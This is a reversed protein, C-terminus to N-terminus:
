SAFTTVRKRPAYQLFLGAAILGAILMTWTSPLPTQTVSVTDIFATEDSQNTLGLFELTNAGSLLLGTAAELTFNESQTTTNNYIVNGNLLVEYNEIGSPTGFSGGNIRSGEYWSVTGQGASSSTFTQSISGVDQLFAYQPDSPASPGQFIPSLGIEGVPNVLGSGGTYTWSGVTGPGGSLGPYAYGPSNVYPFVFSPSGTISSVLVDDFGGNVLLPAAFSPSASAVLALVTVAGFFKKAM